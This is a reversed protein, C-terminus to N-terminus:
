WGAWLVRGTLGEAQDKIVTVTPRRWDGEIRYRLHSWYRGADGVHSRFRTDRFRHSSRLPGYAHHPRDDVTIVVIKEDTRECVERFEKMMPWLHAGLAKARAAMPDPMWQESNAPPRCLPGPYLELAVDDWTSVANDVELSASPDIVVVHIDVERDEHLPYADMLKVVSGWTHPQGICDELCMASVSIRNQQALADIVRVPDDEPNLVVEVLCGPLQSLECAIAEYGNSPNHLVSHHEPERYYTAPEFPTSGRVRTFVPRVESSEPEPSGPSPQSSRIRAPPPYADTAAPSFALGVASPTHCKAVLRILGDDLLYGTHAKQGIGRLIPDFRGREVAARRERPEWRAPKALPHLDHDAVLGLLIQDLKDIDEQHFHQRDRTRGKLGIELKFLWTAGRKVRYLNLTANVRTSRRVTLPIEHNRILYSKRSLRGRGDVQQAALNEAMQYADVPSLVVYREAVRFHVIRYEPVLLVQSVFYSVDSYRTGQLDVFVRPQDEIGTESTELGVSYISTKHERNFRAMPTKSGRPKRHTLWASGRLVFNTGHRTDRGKWGPEFCFAPVQHVNPLELRVSYGHQYIHIDGSGTTLTPESASEEWDDLGVDVSASIAEVSQQPHPTSTKM